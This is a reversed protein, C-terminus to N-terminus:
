RSGGQLTNTWGTRFCPFTKFYTKPIFNKSVINAKKIAEKKYTLSNGSGIFIREKKLENYIPNNRIFSNNKFDVNKFNM